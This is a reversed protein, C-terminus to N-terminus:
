NTFFDFINGIMSSEARYIETYKCQSCSVTTFRKTQINFLKTFMGGTARFEDIEYQSYGCKPCRYNLHTSM